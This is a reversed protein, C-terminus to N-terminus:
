HKNTLPPYQIQASYKGGVKFNYIFTKILSPKFCADNPWDIKFAIFAFQTIDRKNNPNPTSISWAIPKFVSNVSIEWLQCISDRIIFNLSIFLWDQNVCVVFYIVDFIPKRLKYCVVHVMISISHITFLAKSLKQSSKLKLFHMWLPFHPVNVCQFPLLLM